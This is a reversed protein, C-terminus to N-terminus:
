HVGLPHQQSRLAGPPPWRTSAILLNFSFSPPHIEHLKWSAGTIVAGFRSMQRCLNGPQRAGAQKDLRGQLGQVGSVVARGKERRYRQM